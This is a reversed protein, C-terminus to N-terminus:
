RAFRADVRDDEVVLQRRRLQAVEFPREIALDDIPRLEDEVDEGPARPGTFALQLDLQRLELVQHRPQDSRAVRQRPLAAPDAGQAGAFGLQLRVAATDAMADADQRLLDVRHPAAAR